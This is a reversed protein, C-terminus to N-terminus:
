LIPSFWSFAWFIKALFSYIKKIKFYFNMKGANWFFYDLKQGFFNALSWFTYSNTNSKEFALSSQTKMNSFNKASFRMSIHELELFYHFIETLSTTSKSYISKRSKNLCNIASSFSEPSLGCNVLLIKLDESFNCEITMKLPLYIFNEKIDDFLPLLLEKFATPTFM